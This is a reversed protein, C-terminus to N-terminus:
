CLDLSRLRSRNSRLARIQAGPLLGAGGQKARGPVPHDVLSRSNSTPSSIARLVRHRLVIAPGGLAYPRRDRRGRLDGPHILCHPPNRQDWEIAEHQSADDTGAAQDMRDGLPVQEGPTAQAGRDTSVVLRYLPPMGLPDVQDDHRQIPGCPLVDRGTM